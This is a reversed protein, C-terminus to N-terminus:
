GMVIVNKDNDVGNAIIIEFSSKCKQCGMTQPKNMIKTQHNDLSNASLCIPCLCELLAETKLM